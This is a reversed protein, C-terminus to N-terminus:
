RATKRSGRASSLETVNQAAPGNVLDGVHRAWAELAARKENAWDHRQYVGAIGGRSGSVHNLVAETVELRIGLRQLGTAVTRRLDHLTWPELAPEGIAADLRAKAKGLAVPRDGDITFVFDGKVRPVGGLIEVAPAPLPVLHAKGNKARAGPLSWTGATLDLERWPMGAVEGLRQGTMLRFAPGFPYPLAGCARWIRALEGDALVRERSEESAPREVEACPNEDIVDESVAWGFLVSLTALTRNALVRAGRARIAGILRKVDAREIESGKRGRWEAVVGAGSKTLAGDDDVRFGLQRAYERVTRPRNKEMVRERIFWEALAEFADAAARVAERKVQQKETAPDRGDAVAAAHKLALRRAQKLDVSSCSGLTLKRSRGTSDRYRFAWSKSGSPQIVLYLGPQKEDPVERRKSEAPANEVAIATLQNNM